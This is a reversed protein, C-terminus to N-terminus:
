YEKKGHRTHSNEVPKLRKGKEPTISSLTDEKTSDSSGDLHDAPISLKREELFDYLRRYKLRNKDDKKTAWKLTLHDVYAKLETDELRGMSQKVKKETSLKIGAERQPKFQVPVQYPHLNQKFDSLCSIFSMKLRTWKSTSWTIRVAM